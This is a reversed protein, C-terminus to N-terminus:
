GQRLRIEAQTLVIHLPQIHVLAVHRIVVQDHVQKRRKRPEVKLVLDLDVEALRLGYTCCLNRRASLLM